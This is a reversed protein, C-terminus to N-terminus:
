HIRNAHEINVTHTGHCRVHIDVSCAFASMVHDHVVGGYRLKVYLHICSMFQCIINRQTLVAHCRRAELSLFNYVIHFKEAVCVPFPTELDSQVAPSLPNILPTTSCVHCVHSKRACMPSLPCVHPSAPCGPPM